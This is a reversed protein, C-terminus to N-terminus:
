RCGAMCDNPGFADASCWSRADSVSDFREGSFCCMFYDAEHGYGHRLLRLGRGWALVANPWKAHLELYQKYIDRYHQTIGDVEM